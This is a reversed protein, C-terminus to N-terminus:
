VGLMYLLYFIFATLVACVVCLVACVDCLVACVVCLVACVVCLINYQLWYTVV